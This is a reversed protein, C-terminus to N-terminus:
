KRENPNDETVYPMCRKFHSQTQMEKNMDEIKKLDAATLEIQKFKPNVYYITVAPFPKGIEQNACRMVGNTGFAFMQHVWHNHNSKEFGEMILSNRFYTKGAVTVLDSMEVCYGSAMSTTRGGAGDSVVFYVESGIGALGCGMWPIIFVFDDIRDGNLDLSCGKSCSTYIDEDGYQKVVTAVYNSISRRSLETFKAPKCDFVPAFDDMWANANLVLFAAFGCLILGASKMERIRMLRDYPKSLWSAEFAM